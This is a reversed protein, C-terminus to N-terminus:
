LSLVTSSAPIKVSAPQLLRRRLMIALLICACSGANADALFAGLGSGRRKEIPSGTWGGMASTLLAISTAGFPMLAETEPVSTHHLVTFAAAARALVGLRLVYTRRRFRGDLFAALPM